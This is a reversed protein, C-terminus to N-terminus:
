SQNSTNVEDRCCKMVSVYCLIKQGDESSGHCPLPRGEAEAARRSPTESAPGSYTGNKFAHVWTMNVEDCDVIKMCDSAVSLSTNNSGKVLVM